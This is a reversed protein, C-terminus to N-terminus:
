GSSALTRLRFERDGVRIVDEVRLDAAAELPRGAVLVAGGGVSGPVVRFRGAAAEIGFLTGIPTTRNDPIDWERYAFLSLLRERSDQSELTVAATRRSGVGYGVGIGIALFGLLQWAVTPGPLSLLLAGVVGGIAGSRLPKALFGQDGRQEIAAMAVALGGAAATWALLRALLFGLASDDLRSISVALLAILGGGAGGALGAAIGVALGRLWGQDQRQAAWAGVSGGVAAGLLGITVLDLAGYSSV